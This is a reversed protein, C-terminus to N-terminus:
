PIIPIDSNQEFLFIAVFKLLSFYLSVELFAFKATRTINIKCIFTERVDQPLVKCKTFNHLSLKISVMGRYLRERNAEVGKWSVNM